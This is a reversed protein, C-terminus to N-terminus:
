LLRQIDMLPLRSSPNTIHGKPRQIRPQDDVHVAHVARRVEARESEIAMVAHVASVEVVGRM